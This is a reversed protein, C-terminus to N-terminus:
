GLPRWLSSAVLVARAAGRRLRHRDEARSAGVAIQGTRAGRVGAHDHCLIPAAAAREVVQGREDRTGTPRTVNQRGM